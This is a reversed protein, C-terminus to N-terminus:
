RSLAEAEECRWRYGGHCLVTDNQLRVRRFACRVSARCTGAQQLSAPTNTCDELQKSVLRGKPLPSIGSTLLSLVDGKMQLGRGTEM